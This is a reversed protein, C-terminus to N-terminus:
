WNSSESASKGMGPSSRRLSQASAIERAERDAEAQAAASDANSQALMLTRLNIMQHAREAALANAYQLQKGHGQAKTAEGLLTNVQDTDHQLVRQQELMTKVLQDNATKQALSGEVDANGLVEDSAVKGEYHDVAAFNGTPDPIPLTWGDGPVIVQFDKFVIDYNYETYNLIDTTTIDINKTSIDINTTSQDINSTYYNIDGGSGLQGSIIALEVAQIGNVVLNAGDIVPIDATASGAFAVAVMACLAKSGRRMTVIKM